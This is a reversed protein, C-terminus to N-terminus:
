EYLKGHIAQLTDLDMKIVARDYTLLGNVESEVDTTQTYVAAALGKQKLSDLPIYLGNYAMLLSDASTSTEFHTPAKSLDAVWLHDPVVLAQGGFEGLVAVRVDEVEPMDPGPYSHM